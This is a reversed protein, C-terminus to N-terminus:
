LLIQILPGIERKKALDFPTFGDSCRIRKRAGYQILLRAAEANNALVANHLPTYGKGTTVANPDFGYDLLLKVVNINSQFIALHLATEGIADRVNKDVSGSALIERVMREDGRYAANIIANPPFMANPEQINESAVISVTFVLVFLFFLLKKAGM